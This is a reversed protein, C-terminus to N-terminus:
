ALSEVELLHGGPSDLHGRASRRRVVAELVRYGNPELIDRALHRVDPDDDVLLITEV